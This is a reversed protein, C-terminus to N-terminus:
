YRTYIIGQGSRCVKKTSVMGCILSRLTKGGDNIEMLHNKTTLCTPSEFRTINSNEKLFLGFISFRDTEKYNISPRKLDYPTGISKFSSLTM